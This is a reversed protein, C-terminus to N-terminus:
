SAAKERDRRVFYRKVPQAFALLWTLPLCVVVALASQLAAAGGTKGNAVTLLSGAVILCLLAVAAWRAWGQRLQLGVVVGLYLLGLAGFVIRIFGAELYTTFYLTVGGLLALLLQVIGILVPKPTM